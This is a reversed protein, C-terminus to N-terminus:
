GDVYCIARVNVGGVAEYANDVYEYVQVQIIQVQVYCNFGEIDAGNWTVSYECVVGEVGLAEQESYTLVWELKAAQVQHKVYLAPAKAAEVTREKMAPTCSSFAIVVMLMVVIWLLKPEDIMKMKIRDLM